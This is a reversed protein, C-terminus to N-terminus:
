EKAQMDSVEKNTTNVNQDEEEDPLQDPSSIGYAIEELQKHKRDLQRQKWADDCPVFRGKDFGCQIRHGQLGFRDKAIRFDTVQNEFDPVAEIIVTAPEIVAPCEKIRSDLEVNNRKGLSHLQAFLVVPMNSTKIYGGLYIRLDNLVDYRSRTKDNVSSQIQQYYDILVCAYDGDRKVAELANKVGELSTVTKNSGKHDIDIVKIYRSIIPFLKLVEKVLPDPMIDKKYDNFNYGLELCGIRFLIDQKSEENSIVLVKKGEKWLPHSINAAITSKGSGTYACILYLNERTFPIAKTMTPNIFTIKEKLMKRYSLVGEFMKKISDKDGFSEIEDLSVSVDESSEYPSADLLKKVQDDSLKSM